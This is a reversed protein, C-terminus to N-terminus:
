KYISAQRHQFRPNLEADFFHKRKIWVLGESRTIVAVDIPGGVTESPKTVKEKLSQLNILTEALEAMEEIPLAGLVRRLPIAHEQMARDLLSNSTSGRAKAVLAALDNIKTIEGGSAQCVEAAFTQLEETLSEMVVSYVDESLGLYFTDTMSKQAFASLAAPTEHDISLNNVETSVQRGVVVGASSYESMTPFIDHDGFGAFLIGTTGFFKYPNKFLDLMTLEVFSPMDSPEIKNFAEAVGIIEDHIETKWMLITNAVTSEDFCKMFEINNLSNRKAILASDVLARRENENIAPANDASLLFGLASSRAAAFFEEKQVAAPFFKDHKDLFSFFEEAYGTLKNFSKNGLFLRFDKIIVEWPVKLVDASDFIMMGVPHHYSLQFIKNAGKFYRDERGNATWQTVTTASDAALVAALRNM